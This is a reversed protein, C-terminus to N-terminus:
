NELTIRFYAIHYAIGRIIYVERVEVTLKIADEAVKDGKSIAPFNILCIVKFPCYLRRLNGSGDIVLLSYSSVWKLLEQLYKEKDM